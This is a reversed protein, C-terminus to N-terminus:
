VTDSGTTTETGNSSSDYVGSVLTDVDPFSEEEASRLGDAVLHEIRDLTLGREVPQLLSHDVLFSEFCGVPDQYPEGEARNESDVRVGSRRGVFPFPVSEDDLGYGSGRATRVEVLTPGKGSRAREIATEIVQLVQLIDVGDVPLSPVGYGRMRDYLYHGEATPLPVHDLVVILALRHVAAFNLGEHFDGTAVAREDALAVAVGPKGLSKSAFAIGALVGIHTAM